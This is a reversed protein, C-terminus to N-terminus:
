VKNKAEPVYDNHVGAPLVEFQNTGFIYTRLDYLATTINNKQCEAFKLDKFIRHLKWLVNVTFV